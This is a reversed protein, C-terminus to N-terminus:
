PTSAGYHRFYFAIISNGYISHGLLPEPWLDGIVIHSDTCLLLKLMQIMRQECWAQALNLILSYSSIGDPSLDPIHRGFLRYGSANLDYVLFSASLLISGNMAQFAELMTPLMINMAFIVLAGLLIALTTLFTRLKRGWLYRAALTIQLYAM